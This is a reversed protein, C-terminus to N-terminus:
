CSTKEKQKELEAVKAQLQEIQKDKSNKPKLKSLIRDVHPKLIYGLAAGVILALISSALAVAVAALVAALKIFTTIRKKTLHETIYSWITQITDLIFSM